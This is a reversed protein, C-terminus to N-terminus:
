FSFDELQKSLKTLALNTPATEQNQRDFSRLSLGKKKVYIIEPYLLSLTKLSEMKLKAEFFLSEKVKEFSVQPPLAILSKDGLRM